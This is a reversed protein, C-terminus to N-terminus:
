TLNAFVVLARNWKRPVGWRRRIRPRGRETGRGVTIPDEVGGRHRFRWERKAMVKGLRLDRTRIEGAGSRWVSRRRSRVRGAEAHRKTGAGRVECHGNGPLNPRICPGNGARECGGAVM